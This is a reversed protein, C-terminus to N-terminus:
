SVLWVACGSLKNLVRRSVSGMFFAHSAGSRGVVVTGYNGEKAYNTIAKGVDMTREAVEIEIQDEKVAAARFKKLAHAYFHDIFRKAGRAIVEDVAGEKKDFHIECFDRFRPKVHFLTVRAKDNGGLMFCLHDVARLSAESGDVALMIKMSTVDGDVIWVPVVRSHELLKTTTSGMFTEQIPSLGRRGVIIADFLGKQACDLIDKCIGMMKKQTTTEIREESVGMWVM